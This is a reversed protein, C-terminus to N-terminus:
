SVANTKLLFVHFLLNLLQKKKNILNIYGGIEGLFCCICIKFVMTIIIFFCFYLGYSFPSDFFPGMLLPNM